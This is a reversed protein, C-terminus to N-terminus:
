MREPASIGLIGLANKFTQAARKLLYLRALTIDQNETIVRSTNYFRHFCSALETLYYTLRHPEFNVASEEIAHPLSTLLKLLEM